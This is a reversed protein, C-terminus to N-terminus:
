LASRGYASSPGADASSFCCWYGVGGKKLTLCLRSPEAEKKTHTMSGNEIQGAMAAMPSEFNM